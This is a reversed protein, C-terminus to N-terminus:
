VDFEKSSQNILKIHKEKELQIIAQHAKEIKEWSVEFEKKMELKEVPNLLHNQTILFFLYM